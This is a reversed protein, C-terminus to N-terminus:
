EEWAELSDSLSEAYAPEDPCYYSLKNRLEELKVQYNELETGAAQLEEYVDKLTNRAESIVDLPLRSDSSLEVIDEIVDSVETATTVLECKAYSNLETVTSLLTMFPTGKLLKKISLM